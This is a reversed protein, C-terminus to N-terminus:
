QDKERERKIKNVADTQQYLFIFLYLDTFMKERICAIVQKDRRENNCHYIYLLYIWRTEMSKVTVVESFDGARM